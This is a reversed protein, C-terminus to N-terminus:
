GKTVAVADIEIDAGKPLSSVAVTARAPFPATFFEGYVQNMDGFEKLDVLYVTTKVVHQFNSGAADLISGINKLVQRTQEAITGKIVDNTNPDIPIQGSVFILGNAKVAQSYPGIAKPAKDTNIAKKEM